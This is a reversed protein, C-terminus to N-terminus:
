YTPNQKPVGKEIQMLHVMDRVASLPIGETPYTLLSGVGNGIATFVLDRPTLQLEKIRDIMKRCGLICNDDPVPHAGHIVEVRSLAEHDGYKALAVGATLFDGLVDELAKVVRLIGKGAAFVFIRDIDQELNYTAAGPNPTGIPEFDPYGVTLFGGELHLMQRTTNYPDGAQLGAELIDCVLNRGEINGHSTLAERNLIRTM